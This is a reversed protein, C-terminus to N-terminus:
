CGLGCYNFDDAQQLQFSLTYGTLIASTTKIFPLQNMNSMTITDSKLSYFNLKNLFKDILDDADDLIKAYEASISGTHDIGFFDISCIWTKMYNSVGNVTYAPISSLPNLLIFPFRQDSAGTNFDSLRGYDFQIDDGLSQATDQILLRIGKHSM